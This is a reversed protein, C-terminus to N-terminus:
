SIGTQSNYITVPKKCLEQPGEKSTIRCCHFCGCSDTIRYADGRWLLAAAYVKECRV